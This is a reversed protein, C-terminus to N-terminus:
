LEQTQIKNKSFGFNKRTILLNHNQIGKPSFKNEQSQPLLKKAKSKGSHTQISNEEYSIPILFEILLTVSESSQLLLTLFTSCCRQGLHSDM